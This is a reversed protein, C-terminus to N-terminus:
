NVARVMATGHHVCTPGAVGARVSSILPPTSAGMAAARWSPCASNKAPAAANDSVAVAVVAFTSAPVHAAIDDSSDAAVSVARSGVKAAKFGGSGGGTTSCCNCGLKNPHQRGNCKRARRHKSKPRCARVWPGGFCDQAQEKTKHCTLEFCM